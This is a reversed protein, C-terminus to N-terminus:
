PSASPDTLTFRIAKVTVGRGIYVRAQLGKPIQASLTRWDGDNSQETAALPKPRWDQGPTMGFVQIPNGAQYELEIRAEQDTAGDGNADLPISANIYSYYDTSLIYGDPGLIWRTGGQYSGFVDANELQTRILQLKRITVGRSLAFTPGVPTGAPLVINATQWQMTNSMPQSALVAGPTPGFLSLLATGADFYEIVVTFPEDARGDRDADLACACTFSTYDRGTQLYGNADLSWGADTQDLPVQVNLATHHIVRVEYFSVGRYARHGEISVNSGLATLVSQESQHSIGIMATDGVQQAGPSWLGFSQVNPKAGYYYEFPTVAYSASIYIPGNFDRLDAAADRWNEIPEGSYTNALGQLMFGLLWGAFVGIAVLAALRSVSRLRQVVLTAEVLGLAGVFALGPIYPSVQRVSLVPEFLISVLIQGVPVLAIVGVCLVRPDRWRRAVGYVGLLLLPLGLVLWSSGAKDLGLALRGTYRLLPLSIEHYSGGGPRPHARFTSWWPVYALALIVVLALGAILIWGDRKRVMRDLGYVAFVGGQATLVIFGSYHTYVIAIALAAYLGFRPVSPKLVFGALALSSALTLLGVLSYMRAEQTAFLFAGNTLLLLSAALSLLWGNIRWAAIALLVITAAGFIASPARLSAESNGALQTWYHLVGYYLPPHVDHATLYFM